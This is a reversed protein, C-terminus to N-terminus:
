PPTRPGSWRPRKLEDLRHHASGPCGATPAAPKMFRASRNMRATSRPVPPGSRTRRVQRGRRRTRDRRRAFSSWPSPPATVWSASAHHVIMLIAGAAAQGGAPHGALLHRADRDGSLPCPEQRRRRRGVPRRSTSPCGRRAGCRQANRRAPAPSSPAPAPSRSGGCRRSAWGWRRRRSDPVHQVQLVVRDVRRGPPEHLGDVVEAHPESAPGRCGAGRHRAHGM